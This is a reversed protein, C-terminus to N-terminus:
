FDKKAADPEVVATSVSGPPKPHYIAIIQLGRAGYEADLKYLAPATATCVPCSQTWWRQLVVKGRLDSMEMPQSHLWQKIELPPAPRGVLESGDPHKLDRARLSLAALPATFAAFLLNRRKM